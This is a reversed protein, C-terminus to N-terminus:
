SVVLGPVFTTRFDFSFKGYAAQFTFPIMKGARESWGCDQLLKMSYRQYADLIEKQVFLTKQTDSQDLHVTIIAEDAYELEGNIYNAYTETYNRAFNIFGFLKGRKTDEYADQYTKYFIQFSLKILMSMVTKIDRVKKAVEDDFEDIYRCSVKSFRCVSGNLQPVTMSSNGCEDVYNTEGNVIGIKLDKIKGGISNHMGFICIAPVFIIIAM